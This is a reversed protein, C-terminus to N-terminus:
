MSVVSSERFNRDLRLGEAGATLLAGAALSTGAALSAGAALLFVFRTLAVSPDFPFRAM